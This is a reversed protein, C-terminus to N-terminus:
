WYTLGAAKATFSIRPPVICRLYFFFNVDKTQGSMIAPKTPNLLYECHVLPIFVWLLHPVCSLRIFRIIDTVM